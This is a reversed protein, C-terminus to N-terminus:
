DDENEVQRLEDFFVSVIEGSSCLVRTRPHGPKIVYVYEPNDYNGREMLAGEVIGRKRLEKRNKRKEERERLTNDEVAQRIIEKLKERETKERPKQVAGPGWYSNKWSPDAKMMVRKYKSM